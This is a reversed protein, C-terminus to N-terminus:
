VCFVCVKEPQGAVFAEIDAATHLQAVYAGTVAAGLDAELEQVGRHEWLMAGNRWFQVTPVVEVKLRDLLPAAADDDAQVAVFVADGCERATRTFTHKIDACASIDLEEGFEAKTTSHIQKAPLSAYARAHPLSLARPHHRARM